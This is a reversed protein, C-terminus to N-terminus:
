DCTVPPTTAESTGVEGTADDIWRFLIRAESGCLRRPDLAAGPASEGTLTTSRSEGAAGGARLAAPPEALDDRDARGGALVDIAQPRLEHSETAHAGTRYDVGLTVSVVDGAADAAVEASASTIEVALGLETDIACGGSALAGLIAGAILASRRM